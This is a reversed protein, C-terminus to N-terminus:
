SKVATVADVLVPADDAVIEETPFSQYLTVSVVDADMADPNVLTM